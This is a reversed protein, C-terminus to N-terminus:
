NETLLVQASILRHILLPHEMQLIIEEDERIASM